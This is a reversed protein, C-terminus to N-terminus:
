GLSIIFNIVIAQIHVSSFPYEVVATPAVISFQSESESAQTLHPLLQDCMNLMVSPKRLAPSRERVAIIRLKYQHCQYVASCGFQCM